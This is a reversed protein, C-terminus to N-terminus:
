DGRHREAMQYDELQEELQSVRERLVANEAQVERLYSALAKWPAGITHRIHRDKPILTEVAALQDKFDQGAVEKIESGNLREILRKHGEVKGSIKCYHMTWPKGTIGSWDRPEHDYRLSLLVLPQMWINEIFNHFQHLVHAQAFAQEEHASQMSFQSQDILSLEIVPM